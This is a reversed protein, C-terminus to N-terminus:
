RSKWAYLSQPSCAHLGHIHAALFLASEIALDSCLAGALAIDCGQGWEWGASCGTHLEARHFSCAHLDLRQTETKRREEM